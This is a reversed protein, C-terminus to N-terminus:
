SIAKPTWRLVEQCNSNVMEQASGALTSARGPEISWARSPMPARDRRSASQELVCNCAAIWGARRRRAVRYREATSCPQQVKPSTGPAVISPAELAATSSGSPRRSRTKDEPDVAIGAPWNFQGNGTGSGGFKRVYEGEANFEEVRNNISDTIVLNGESDAAIGVPQNFQGNGSGQTGIESIYAGETTFEVIRDNGSDVLWVHGEPDIAIGQPHSFQGPFGVKRIYEGEATFEQIRNNGM